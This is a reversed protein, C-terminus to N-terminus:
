TSLKFDDYHIMQKEKVFNIAGITGEKPWSVILYVALSTVSMNPRSKTFTFSPFLASISSFELEFIKGKSFPNM